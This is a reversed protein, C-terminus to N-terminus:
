FFHFSNAANKQLPLTFNKNRHIKKAAIIVANCMINYGVPNHVSVSRTQLVGCITCFNKCLRSAYSSSSCDTSRSSQCKGNVLRVAKFPFIFFMFCHFTKNYFQTMSKGWVICVVSIWACQLCDRFVRWYLPLQLFYTFYNWKCLETQTSRLVISSNHNHHM